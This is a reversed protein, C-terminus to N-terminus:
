GANGVESVATTACHFDCLGACPHPQHTNALDPRSLFLASAPRSLALTHTQTHANSLSLGGLSRASISCQYLRDSNPLQSSSVLGNAVIPIVAEDTTQATWQPPHVSPAHARRIQKGDICRQRNTPPPKPDDRRRGTDIIRDCWSCALWAHMCVCVAVSWLLVSWTTRDLRHLTM